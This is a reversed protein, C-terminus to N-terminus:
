FGAAPRMPDRQGRRPSAATGRCGIRYTNGRDERRNRETARDRMISGM